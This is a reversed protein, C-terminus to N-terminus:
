GEDPPEDPAPEEPPHSASWAALPEECEPAVVCEYTGAPLVLAGTIPVLPARHGDSVVLVTGGDISPLDAADVIRYTFIAEGDDVAIKFLQRFLM